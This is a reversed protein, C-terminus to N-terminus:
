RVNETKLFSDVETELECYYMIQDEKYELIQKYHLSITDENFPM